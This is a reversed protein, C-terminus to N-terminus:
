NSFLRLGSRAHRVAAIDLWPVTSAFAVPSSKDFDSQTLSEILDFSDALAGQADIAGVGGLRVAANVLGAAVTYASAAVASREDLGCRRWLWGQAVPLHGLADGTIVSARYETAGRTGLRSHSILLAAGNRRSGSRAPESWNSAEFAADIFALRRVDEAHFSHLVALKDTVAWRHQLTTKLVKVLGARDVGGNLAAAGEVGNSFAFSGSPFASDSQWLAALITRV